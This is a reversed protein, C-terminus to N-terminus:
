SALRRRISFPQHLHRIRRPAPRWRASRFPCRFGSEEAVVDLDELLGEDFPPAVRRVLPERGIVEVKASMWLDCGVDLADVAEPEGPHAPSGAARRRCNVRTLRPRCLSSRLRYGGLTAAAVVVFGRHISSLQRPDFFQDRRSRQQYSSKRFRKVKWTMSRSATSRQAAAGAIALPLPNRASAATARSAAQRCREFLDFTCDEQIRVRHERRM